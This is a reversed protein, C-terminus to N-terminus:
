RLLHVLGRRTYYRGDVHRYRVTYVYAGAPAPQSAFTGDWGLAPDATAFVLNGWSTFIRLEYDSSRVGLAQFLDNIGDGNPSFADPMYLPPRVVCDEEPVQHCRALGYYTFRDHRVVLQYCVENGCLFEQDVISATAGLATVEKWPVEDKYIVATMGPPSAPIQWSLRNQDPRGELAFAAACVPPSRLPALCTDAPQLRFCANGSLEVSTVVSTATSAVPMGITEFVGGPTGKVLILDAKLPNEFTLLLEEASMARAETIAPPDMTKPLAITLQRIAGRCQGPTHVGRVRITYTSASDYKYGIKNGFGTYGKTETDGWDIQYTPYPTPQTQEFILQVGGEACPIAKVVPALTDLVEVTRCTVWKKDATESVQVVTYVGPQNYVHVNDPSLSGPALAGGRYDFLTRTATAGPIDNKMVVNLPLCGSLTLSAQGEAYEGPLALSAPCQAWVQTVLFCFFVAQIVKSFVIRSSKM